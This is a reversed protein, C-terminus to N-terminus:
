RDALRRLARDYKEVAKDMARTSAKSTTITKVTKGYSVRWVDGRSGSKVSAVRDIKVEGKRVVTREKAM